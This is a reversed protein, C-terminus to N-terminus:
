KSPNFDILFANISTPGSSDYASMNHSNTNPPLATGPGPQQQQQQQQTTIRNQMSVNDIDTANSPICPVQQASGTGTTGFPEAGLYDEMFKFNKVNM